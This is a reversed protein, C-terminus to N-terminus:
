DTTCRPTTSWKSNVLFPRRSINIVLRNDSFPMPFPCSSYYYCYTALGSSMLLLLQVVAPRFAAAAPPARCNSPNATGKKNVTCM